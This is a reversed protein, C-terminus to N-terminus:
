GESVALRVSKKKAKLIGKYRALKVRLRFAALEDETKKVVQILDSVKM